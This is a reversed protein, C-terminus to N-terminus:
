YQGAAAALVSARDGESPLAQAARMYADRVASTSLLERRALSTLVVARDGSSAMGHTREIVAITAAPTQATLLRLDALNRLVVAIDGVGLVEPQGGEIGARGGDHSLGDM